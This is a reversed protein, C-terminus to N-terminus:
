ACLAVIDLEIMELERALDVDIFSGSSGFATSDVLSDVPETSASLRHEVTALGEDSTLDAPGPLWAAPM